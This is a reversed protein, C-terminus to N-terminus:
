VTLDPRNFSGFPFAFRFAFRSLESIRFPVYSNVTDFDRAFVTNQTLIADAPLPKGAPSEKSFGANEIAKRYVTVVPCSQFRSLESNGLYSL